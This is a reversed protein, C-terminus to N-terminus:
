DLLDDFGLQQPPLNAVQPPYFCSVVCWVHPHAKVTGMLLHLDKQRFEELFRHRMKDEWQKPHERVMKWYLAGLEWDLILRRQPAQDGICLIDYYFRHPMKVLKSRQLAAVTDFMGSQLLSSEQEQSWEPEPEKQIVFDQIEAVKVVGLSTKHQERMIELSELGTVILPTFYRRREQWGKETGIVDLLKISDIDVKHSEPRFDSTDRLIRAEIWQWKRFQKDGELFRFPIPYLRRLEGNENVGAVCVTERSKRSPQPYTKALILIKEVKWNRGNM